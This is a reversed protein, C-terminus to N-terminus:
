SVADDYLDKSSYGPCNCDIHLQTLTTFFDSWIMAIATLHCIACLQIM